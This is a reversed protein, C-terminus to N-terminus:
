CTVAVEVEAIIFGDGASPDDEWSGIVERDVGSTNWQRRSDFWVRTDSCVGGEGKAECLGVNIVTEHQVGVRGGDRRIRTQRRKLSARAEVVGCRLHVEINERRVGCKLDVRSFM